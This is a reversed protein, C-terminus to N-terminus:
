IFGEFDILEKVNLNKYVTNDKLAIGKVLM